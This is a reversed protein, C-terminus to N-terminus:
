EFKLMMLIDEVAANFMESMIANDVFYEGGFSGDGYVERATKSDMISSPVMPSLKSEKPMESVVTFPFAELWNAHKPKLNYKIAVKEVSHSTWWDYWNLKLGPMDNNVDNLHVNLGKNGGHGNLILIRRFGQHYASRIIDEVVANLTSVRLTLTGPYDRFYPSNGFNVPPAVLVGTVNSAADAMALPIKIDTLLSLYAHQECAGTVLILRDDQELYREVDMWNLEEFRM